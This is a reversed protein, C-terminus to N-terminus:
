IQVDLNHTSKLFDEVYTFAESSNKSSFFELASQCPKAEPNICDKSALILINDQRSKALRKFSPKKEHRDQESKESSNVLTMNLWVVADAVSAMSKEDTSNGLRDHPNTLFIHQQYLDNCYNSRVKDLAPETYVGFIVGHELAWLWQLLYGALDFKAQKSALEGPFFSHM